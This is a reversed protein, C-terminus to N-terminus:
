SLKRVIWDGLSPWLQALAFVLRSRGPVVLEPKRRRCADLIKGALWEPQILSVKVGGGPKRASEPLVAVKDALYARPTDRAIPGPSVLLV